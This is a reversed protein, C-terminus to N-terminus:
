HWATKHPHHDNNAIKTETRKEIAKGLEENVKGFMAIFVILMWSGISDDRLYRGVM